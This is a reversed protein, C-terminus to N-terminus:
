LDSCGMSEETILAFLKIFLMIQAHTINTLHKGLPKSVFGQSGFVLINMTKIINYGSINFILNTKSKQM